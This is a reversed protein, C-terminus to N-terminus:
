TYAKEAIHSVVLFLMGLIFASYMVMRQNVSLGVFVSETLKASFGGCEKISLLGSVLLLLWSASETLSLINVDSELPNQISYSLIAFILGAFFFRFKTLSSLVAQHRIKDLEEVYKSNTIDGSM